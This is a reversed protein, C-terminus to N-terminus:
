WGQETVITYVGNFGHYISFGLLLIAIAQYMLAPVNVTAFQGSLVGESMREVTNDFDVEEAGVIFHEVAFHFGLLVILGVGTIRQL